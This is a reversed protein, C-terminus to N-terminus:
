DIMVCATFTMTNPGYYYPLGTKKCADSVVLGYAEMRPM